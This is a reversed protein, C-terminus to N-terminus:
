IYDMNGNIKHLEKILLVESILPLFTLRSFLATSYPAGTRTNVPRLDNLPLINSIIFRADFEGCILEYISAL